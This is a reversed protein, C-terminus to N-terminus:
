ILIDYAGNAAPNSSVLLNVPLTTAPRIGFRNLLGDASSVSGWSSVHYMARSAFASRLWWNVQTNSENLAIRRTESNFYNLFQGDDNGRSNDVEAASLIFSVTSGSSIIINDSGDIGKMRITVEQLYNQINSGIFLNNYLPAGVSLYDRHIASSNLYTFPYKASSPRWYADEVVRERLILVRGSNEYNHSLLLYRQVGKAPEVVNVYSGIPVSSLPIGSSYCERWVGQVKDYIKDTERWVGQVKDYTKNLERWAGQVKDYVPM